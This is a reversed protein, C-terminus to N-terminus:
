PSCARSSISRRSPRDWIRADRSSLRDSASTRSLLALHGRPQHRFRYYDNEVTDPTGFLPDHYSASTKPQRRLLNAVRRLVHRRQEQSGGQGPLALPDAQANPELQDTRATEVSAIATPM